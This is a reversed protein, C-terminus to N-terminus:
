RSILLLSTIAEQILTRARELKERKYAKGIEHESDKIKERVKADADDLLKIIEYM